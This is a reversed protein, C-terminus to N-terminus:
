KSRSRSRRRATLTVRQRHLGSSPADRVSKTRSPSREQSDLQQRRAEGSANSADLEGMEPEMSLGAAQNLAHLALPLEPFRGLIFDGAREQTWGHPPDGFHQALNRCYRRLEWFGNEYPKIPKIKLSSPASNEKTYYCPDDPQMREKWQELIKIYRNDRVEQYVTWGDDRRKWFRDVEELVRTVHACFTQPPFGVGPQPWGLSAESDELKFLPHQPLQKTRLRRSPDLALMEAVLGEATIM